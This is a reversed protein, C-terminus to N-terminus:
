ETEVVGEEEERNSDGASASEPFWPGMWFLHTGWFIGAAGVDNGMGM